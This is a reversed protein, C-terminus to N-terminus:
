DDDNDGDDYDNDVVDNDYNTRKNDSEIVESVNFEDSNDLDLIWKPPPWFLNLYDPYVSLRSVSRFRLLYFESNNLKQSIQLLLESPLESWDAM